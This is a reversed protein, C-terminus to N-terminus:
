KIIYLHGRVDSNLEKRLIVPCYKVVSFNHAKILDDLYSKKHSYRGNQQLKFGKSAYDETLMETTFAFIDHNDKKLFSLSTFVPELDGVYVFVDAAIGLIPNQHLMNRDIFNKDFGDEVNIVDKENNVVKYVNNHRFNSLHDIFSTMAGAYLSNYVKKNNVKKNAAISLMKPSLDVGASYMFDLDSCEAILEGALGTGCGIDLLLSYTPINLGRIAKVLLSPANYELKELSSEFSISFDDFLKTIYDDSAQYNENDNTSNNKDALISMLMHKAISNKNNYHLSTNLLNQAENMLNDVKGSNNGNTSNMLLKETEAIRLVARGYHEYLSSLLEHNDNSDAEIVIGISKNYSSIAAIYNGLRHELSGLNSLADISNPELLLLRQYLGRAEKLEDRNQSISYIDQLLSALNFLAGSHDGDVLAKRYCIEANENDGLDLYVSGLNCNADAHTPEQKLLKEYLTKAESLLGKGYLSNAYSFMSSIDNSCTLTM